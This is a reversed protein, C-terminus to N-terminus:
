PMSCRVRSPPPSDVLMLAVALIHTIRQATDQLLFFHFLNHLSILTSGREPARNQLRNM